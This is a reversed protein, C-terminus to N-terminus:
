ETRMLGLVLFPPNDDKSCYAQTRDLFDTVTEGPDPQTIRIARTDVLGDPAHLMLRQRADTWHVRYPFRMVAHYHPNGDRHLEKSGFILTGAPM